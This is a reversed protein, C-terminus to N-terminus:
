IEGAFVLPSQKKLKYKVHELQVQNEYIPIQYKVANQWSNINWAFSIVSQKLFLLNLKM